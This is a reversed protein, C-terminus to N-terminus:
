EARSIVGQPPGKAQVTILMQSVHNRFLRWDDQQREVTSEGCSSMLKTRCRVSSFIGAHYVDNPVGSDTLYDVFEGM